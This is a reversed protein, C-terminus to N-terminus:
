ATFMRPLHGGGFPTGLVEGCTIGALAAYAANVAVMAEISEPDEVHIEGNIM